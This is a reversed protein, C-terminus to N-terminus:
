QASLATLPSLIIATANQVTLVTGPLLGPRGPAGENFARDLDEVGRLLRILDPSSGATFHGLGRSFETVDVLTIDLDAVEDVSDLNGLRDRQGSLRASLTLARDRQSTVIIVSDPMRGIDRVQARFVDIDIDPSLLVLEHIERGVRGPAELAMQRLAEMTLLAGMSHAVILVDDPKAAIVADLFRDFGTRAFLTSDRDHAYGFPSALSPWSYHLTVGGIGFDHSLQASRYLGEAFNTNFGHVYLVVAREGRPRDVLARRLAATFEPAAGYSQAAVTVFDERPDPAGRPYSIQGPARDAPIAVEYSAFRLEPARDESFGAGTEPVRTTGVFVSRTVASPDPAPVFHLVGRPACGALTVLCALCILFAHQRLM